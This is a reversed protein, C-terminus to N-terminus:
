AYSRVHITDLLNMWYLCMEQARQAASLKLLMFHSIIVYKM